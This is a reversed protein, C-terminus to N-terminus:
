NITEEKRWLALGGGRGRAAICDEEILFYRFFAQKKIPDQYFKERSAKGQRISGSYIVKGLIKVTIETFDFALLKQKPFFKTRGTLTLNLGAISVSNEVNGAEADTLTLDDNRTYSLCIKLWQPLYRGAGLMVGARQRTKKTGTIFWLRWQGILQKYHTTTKAKKETKELHILTNVLTSPTPQSAPSTQIASQVEQNTM